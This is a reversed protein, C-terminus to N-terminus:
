YALSIIRCISKYLIAPHAFIYFKISFQSSNMILYLQFIFRKTILQANKVARSARTRGYSIWVMDAWTQTPYVLCVDMPRKNFM